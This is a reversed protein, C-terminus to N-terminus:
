RVAHVVPQQQPCPTEIIAAWTLITAWALLIAVICLPASAERNPDFNFM